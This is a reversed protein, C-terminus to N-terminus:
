KGYLELEKKQLNVTNNVDSYICFDLYQFFIMIKKFFNLELKQWILM